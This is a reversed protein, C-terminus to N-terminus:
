LTFRCLIACRDLATAAAAPAFQFVFHTVPPASTTTWISSDGAADSAFARQSKSPPNAPPSEPSRDRGCSCSTGCKCGADGTTISCCLRAMERSQSNCFSPVRAARDCCSMGPKSCLKSAISSNSDTSCDCAAAPIVPIVLAIAALWVIALTALRKLRRGYM